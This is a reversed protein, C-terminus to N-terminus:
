APTDTASTKQTRDNPRSRGHPDIWWTDGSREISADEGEQEIFLLDARLKRDKHFDSARHGSPRKCMIGRTARCAPCPAALVPHKYSTFDIKM